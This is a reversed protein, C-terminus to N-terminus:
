WSTSRPHPDPSVATSDLTERTFEVGAAAAEDVLPLAADAYRAVHTSRNPLVRAVTPTGRLSRLRDLLQNQDDQLARKLKRTLSVELDVLAADRRQLLAEDGDPRAPEADEVVVETVAQAGADADTGTATGTVTETQASAEASAEATAPRSARIRAFLEDM